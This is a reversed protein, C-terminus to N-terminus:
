HTLRFVATEGILRKLLARVREPDMDLVDCCFVFTLRNPEDRLDSQLWCWAASAVKRSGAVHTPSGMRDGKALTAYNRVDTIAKEVVASVLGRYPNDGFHDRQPRNVVRTDPIRNRSRM